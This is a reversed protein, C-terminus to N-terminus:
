WVVYEYELEGISYGKIDVLYLMETGIERYLKERGLGLGLGLRYIAEIVRFPHTIAVVEWRSHGRLGVRGEFHALVDGVAM